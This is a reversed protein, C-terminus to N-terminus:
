LRYKLFFFMEVGAYMAGMTSRLVEEEEELEDDENGQLENLRRSCISSPATGDAQRHAQDYGPLWRFWEFLSMGDIEERLRFSAKADWPCIEVV